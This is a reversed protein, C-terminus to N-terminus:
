LVVLLQVHVVINLIKKWDWNMKIKMRKFIVLSHFFRLTNKPRLCCLINRSLIYNRISGFFTVCVEATAIRFPDEIPIVSGNQYWKYMFTDVVNESLITIEVAEDASAPCGTMAVCAETEESLRGIFRCNEIDKFISREYEEYYYRNLVLKDWKGNPFRVSIQPIKDNSSSRAKILSLQPVKNEAALLIVVLTLVWIALSFKWSM